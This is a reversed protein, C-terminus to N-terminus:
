QKIKNLRLWWFHQHIHKYASTQQDNAFKGRLDDTEFYAYLADILREPPEEQADLWKYFPLDAIPVDGHMDDPNPIQKVQM